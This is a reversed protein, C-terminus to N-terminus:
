KVIKNKVEEGVQEDIEKLNNNVEELEINKVLKFKNNQDFLLNQIDLHKDNIIKNTNTIKENFIIVFNDLNKRIENLKDQTILNQIKVVKLNLKGNYEEIDAIRIAM